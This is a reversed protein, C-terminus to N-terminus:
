ETDIDSEDRGLLWNNIELSDLDMEGFHTLGLQWRNIGLRPLRNRHAAERQVTPQVDDGHVAGLQVDHRM